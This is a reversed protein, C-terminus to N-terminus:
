QKYNGIQLSIITDVPFKKTFHQHFFDWTNQIRKQDLTDTIQWIFLLQQLVSRGDKATKNGM